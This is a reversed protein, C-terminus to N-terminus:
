FLHFFPHPHTPWMVLCVEPTALGLAGEVVLVREGRTKLGVRQPTHNVQLDWVASGSCGGGRGEGGAGGGRGRQGVWGAGVVVRRGKAELEASFFAQSQRLM